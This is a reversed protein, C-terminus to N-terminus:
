RGTGPERPEVTTDPEIFFDAWAGTFVIHPGGRGHSGSVQKMGGRNDTRLPFSSGIEGESTRGEVRFPLLHPLLLRVRALEAIVDLKALSSDDLRAAVDGYRSVLCWRGRGGSAAIRGLVNSITVDGDLQQGSVDGYRSDVEVWDAVDDLYVDGYSCNISMGGSCGAIYVDGHAVAVEIDRCNLFEVDGYRNSVSSGGAVGHVEVDGFSNVAEFRVEPPILLTIDVEYSFRGSPEVLEPYLVAVFITDAWEALSLEIDGIFGAVRQRDEGEVRAIARVDLSEGAASRARIDGYRHTLRVVQGSRSQIRTELQRTMTIAMARGTDAVAASLVLGVTLGVSVPLRM